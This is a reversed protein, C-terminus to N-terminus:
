VTSMWRMPNLLRGPLAGETLWDVAVGGRGYGDDFAKIRMLNQTILLSLNASTFRSM